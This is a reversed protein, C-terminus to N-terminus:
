FPPTLLQQWVRQRITPVCGGSCAAMPVAPPPTQVFGPGGGMMQIAPGGRRASAGPDDILVISQMWVASGSRTASTAPEARFDPSFGRATVTYVNALATGEILCQPAVRPLVPSSIDHATLTHATGPGVGTWGSPITWAAPTQPALPTVQRAAAPLLLQGECFRLAVQAYQNAQTLLRNNMAVHDASTANRMVTASAIGIVALMLMAIILSLGREGAGM